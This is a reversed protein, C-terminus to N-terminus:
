GLANKLSVKAALHKRAADLITHEEELRLLTDVMELLEQQDRPSGYFNAAIWFSLEVATDPIEGALQVNKDVLKSSLKLIDLVAQHIEEILKDPSGSLTEDEFYEVEARIYPTEELINKVEFRNMGLTLINMRGQALKKVQTIITSCGTDLMREKVEDYYIVGFPEEKELAESIM